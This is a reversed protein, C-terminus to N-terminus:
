LTNTHQLTHPSVIHSQNLWSSYPANIAINSNRKLLEWSTIRNSIIIYQCHWSAIDKRYEPTEAYLSEMNHLKSSKQITLGAIRQIKNYVTYFMGILLFVTQVKKHKHQTPISMNEM